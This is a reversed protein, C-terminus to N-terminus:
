AELVIYSFGMCLPPPVSLYPKKNNKKKLALHNEPRVHKTNGWCKAYLSVCLLCGPFTPPTFTTNYEFVSEKYYLIIIMGNVIHVSVVPYPVKHKNM